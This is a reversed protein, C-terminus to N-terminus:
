LFMEHEIVYKVTAEDIIQKSSQSGYLLCNECIHNIKRLIGGSSDQIADVASEDFINENSGAYKLHSRIYLNTEQRDLGHLRVFLDVRQRIAEYSSMALKDLLESQGSLILATPTESDFNVNLFFRFEEITERDLLHAEDVICVVKKGLTEVQTTLANQFNRKGETRYFQPEHGAQKLFNSYLWRPTLKSDSTYYVTYKDRPLSYKLKRLLTTKGAGSPGTLVTFKKGDVSYILRSLGEKAQNSVYMNEPPISRQFPPRVMGYFDLYSM